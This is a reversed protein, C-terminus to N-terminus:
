RGQEPTRNNWRRAEYKLILGELLERVVHKEEKSFQIVAEFQLTLDTDPGREHEDFLLFDATVHLAVAMRKLVDASPQRSVVARNRRTQKTM